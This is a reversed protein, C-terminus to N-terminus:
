ILNQIKNCSTQHCSPASAALKVEQLVTQLEQKTDFINNYCSKIIIIVHLCCHLRCNKTHSGTHFKIYSTFILKSHMYNHMCCKPGDKICLKVAFKIYINLNSHIYKSVAHNEDIMLSRTCVTMFVEWSTELNHSLVHFLVFHLMGHLQAASM